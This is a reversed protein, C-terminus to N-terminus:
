ICLLRRRPFYGLPRSLLLANGLIGSTNAMQLMPRVAAPLTGCRETVTHTGLTLPVLHTDTDFRGLGPYFDTVTGSPPYTTRQPSEWYSFQAGTDFFLRQPAGAITATVIPIGMFEECPLASGPHSLMGSSLTHTGAKLDLLHDFAHLVNAGLLGACPIGIQESLSEATLGVFTRSLTFTRDNLRLDHETGFSTPAGTDLLWLANNIEVFLHNNGFFLPLTTM